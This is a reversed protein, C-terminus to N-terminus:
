LIWGCVNAFIFCAKIFLYFDFIWHFMCHFSEIWTFSNLENMLLMLFITEVAIRCFYFSCNHCLWIVWFNCILFMLWLCKFHGAVLHVQVHHQSRVWWDLWNIFGFWRMYLMVNLQKSQLCVLRVIKIHRVRWWWWGRLGGVVVM